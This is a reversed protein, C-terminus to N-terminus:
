SGGSERKNRLDLAHNRLRETPLQDIWNPDKQDLDKNRELWRELAMKQMYGSTYTKLVNSFEAPPIPDCGEFVTSFVIGNLLRNRAIPPQTGIWDLIESKQQPNAKMIAACVLFPGSSRDFIGREGRELLVARLNEATPLAKVRASLIYSKDYASGPSGDPITKFLEGAREPHFKMLEGFFFERLSTSNTTNLFALFADPRKEAADKFLGGLASMSVYERAKGGVEFVEEDPVMGVRSTAYAGWALDRWENTAIGNLLDTIAPQNWPLKAATERIIDDMGPLGPLKSLLKFFAVPDRAGLKRLLERADDIRGNRLLASIATFESSERISKTRHSSSIAPSPETIQSISPEAAKRVAVTLASSFGFAAIPLMFRSANM